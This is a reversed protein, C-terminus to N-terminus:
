AAASLHSPNSPFYNLLLSSPRTHLFLRTACPNFNTILHICEYNIILVMRLYSICASSSFNDPEIVLVSYMGSVRNASCSTSLSSFPDWKHWSLSFSDITNPEDACRRTSWEANELIQQLYTNIVVDSALENCLYNPSCYPSEWMVVLNAVLNM